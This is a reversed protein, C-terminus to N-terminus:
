AYPDEDPDEDPDEEVPPDPEDAIAAALCLRARAIRAQYAIDERYVSEDARAAYLAILRACDWDIGCALMVSAIYDNHLSQVAICDAYIRMYDSHHAPDHGNEMVPPPDMRSIMSKQVNNRRSIHQYMLSSIADTVYKASLEEKNLVLTFGYKRYKLLRSRFGDTKRSARSSAFYADVEKFNVLRLERARIHQIALEMDCFRTILGSGNVWMISEATFYPAVESELLEAPSVPYAMDPCMQHVQFAIRFERADVKVAMSSNDTNIDLVDLNSLEAAQEHLQRIMAPLSTLTEAELHQLKEAFERLIRQERGYSLWGYSYHPNRGRGRGSYNYFSRRNCKGRGRGRGRVCECRNKLQIDATAFMDIDPGCYLEDADEAMRKDEESADAPLEEKPPRTIETLVTILIFRPDYAQTERFQRDAIRIIRWMISGYVVAGPERTIVRAYGCVAFLQNLVEGIVSCLEQVRDMEKTEVTHAASAASM